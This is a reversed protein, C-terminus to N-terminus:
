VRGLWISLTATGSAPLGKIASHQDLGRPVTMIQFSFKWNTARAFRMKNAFDPEPAVRRAVLILDLRRM